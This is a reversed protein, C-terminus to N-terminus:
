NIKTDNFCNLDYNECNINFEIKRPSYYGSASYGSLLPKLFYPTSNNMVKVLVPFSFFFRGDLTIGNIEIIDVVPSDLFYTLLM